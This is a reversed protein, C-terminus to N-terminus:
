RTIYFSVRLPGRRGTRADELGMGAIDVKTGPNAGAPVDVQIETGDKLRLTKMCGDRAEDPTIILLQSRVTPDDDDEYTKAPEAQEWSSAADESRRAVDVFPPVDGTDVPAAEHEDAPREDLPLGSRENSEVPKGCQTCFVDDSSLPGGCYICYGVPVDDNQDNPQPEPASPEPQPAPDVLSRGRGEENM